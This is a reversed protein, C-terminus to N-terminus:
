NETRIPEIWFGVSSTILSFFRGNQVATQDTLGVLGIKKKKKLNLNFFNYFFLILFRNKFKKLIFIIQNIENCVSCNVCEFKFEM